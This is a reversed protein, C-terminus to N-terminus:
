RLAYLKLNGLLGGACILWVSNLRYRFLLAASVLAIALALWDIIAEKALLILVWAILGVSAATVADLFAGAL